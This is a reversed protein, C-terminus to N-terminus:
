SSPLGTTLTTRRLLLSLVGSSAHTNSKFRLQIHNETKRCIATTRAAAVEILLFQGDCTYFHTLTKFEILGEGHIM